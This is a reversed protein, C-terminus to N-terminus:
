GPELLGHLVRGSEFEFNVRVKGDPAGSVVYQVVGDGGDVVPLDAVAALAEAVWEESLFASM